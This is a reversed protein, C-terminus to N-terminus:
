PCIGACNVPRDSSIRSVSFLHSHCFFIGAGCFRVPPDDAPVAAIRMHSAAEFRASGMLDPHMHGADSMWEESVPQVAGSRGILSQFPLAQM